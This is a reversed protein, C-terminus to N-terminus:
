WSLLVIFEVARDCLLASPQNLAPQSQEEMSVLSQDKGESHEEECGPASSPSDSCLPRVKPCPLKGLIFWYGLYGQPRSCRLTLLPCCLCCGNREDMWIKEGSKWSLNEWCRLKSFWQWLWCKWTCKGLSFLNVLLRMFLWPSCKLLLSRGDGAKCERDNECHWWSWETTVSVCCYSSGPAEGPERECTEQSKSTIPTNQLSEFVGWYWDVQTEKLEKEEFVETSLLLTPSPYFTQTSKSEEAPLAWSNWSRLIKSFYKHTVKGPSLVYSLCVDLKVNIGCLLVLRTDTDKLLGLFKWHVSEGRKWQRLHCQGKWTHGWVM